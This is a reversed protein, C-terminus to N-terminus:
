RNVLALYVDAPTLLGAEFRTRVLKEHKSGPFEDNMGCVSCLIEHLFYQDGYKTFVLKGANSRRGDSHAESLLAIKGDESRIFIIEPNSMNSTILYTGAPVYKDGVNFNFPVTARAAHDQAAATGTAALSALLFVAIVFVTIHKM